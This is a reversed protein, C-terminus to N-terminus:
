FAGVIFWRNERRMLWWRAGSEDLVAFYDREAGDGAWWGFHVREVPSAVLRSGRPGDQWRLPRGRQDCEVAVEHPEFMVAPRAVQSPVGARDDRAFPMYEFGREPRPDATLEARVVAQAGLKGTLEDVLEELGRDSAASGAEFLDRQAPQLVSMAPVRVELGEFWHEGRDVTEFRGLLLGAISRSARVPRTLALDFRVAAGDAVRLCVELAQAGAACATLREELAVSVRRLAFLLTDYRDTPGEFDLREVIVQPPRFAPFHEQGDNRLARMRALLTNSFRSALGDAPLARLAGITRVGLASLHGADSDELRLAAVPADDLCDTGSLALAYAATPNEALGPRVTFGLRELAAVARIVLMPGSGFLKECGTVDLILADPTDLHVRPTFQMMAAALAHFDATESEPDQEVLVLEPLFGRAATATMGVHVGAALVQASAALLTVSDGHRQAM